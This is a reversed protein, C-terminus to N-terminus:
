YREGTHFAIHSHSTSAHLARLRAIPTSVRPPDIKIPYKSISQSLMEMEETLLAIKEDFASCLGVGEGHSEPLQDAGDPARHGDCRPQEAFGCSSRNGLGILGTEASRYPQM